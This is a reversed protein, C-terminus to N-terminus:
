EPSLPICYEMHIDEPELEFLEEDLEETVVCGLHLYFDVTNETPTASIYLRRANLDRAREVAQEFLLKGLGRKRHRNSVHLFLLQLQDKARGIFKSELVAVGILDTGEFAAFFTGGRDFCDQLIPTYLAPEGPLWGPIDYFEPRLVLEGDELYYVNEVIERRDITWILEIETGELKRFLMARM